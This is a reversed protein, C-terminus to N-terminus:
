AGARARPTVKAASAPAPARGGFRSAKREAALALARSRARREVSRVLLVAGPDNHLPEALAGLVDARTLGIDKLARDDLRALERLARRSAWARLLAAMASVVAVAARITASRLGGLGFSRGVM